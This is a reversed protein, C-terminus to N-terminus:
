SAIVYFIGRWSDWICLVVSFTYYPNELVREIDSGVELKPNEFNSMSISIMNTEVFVCSVVIEPKYM